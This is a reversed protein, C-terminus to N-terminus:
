QVFVNVIRLIYPAIDIAYLGPTSLGEVHLQHIGKLRIFVNPSFAVSETEVAPVLKYGTGSTVFCLSLGTRAKSAEARTRLYPM